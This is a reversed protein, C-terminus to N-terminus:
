PKNSRVFLAFGLLFAVSHTVFMCDAIPIM